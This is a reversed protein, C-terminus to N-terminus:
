DFITECFGTLAEDFAKAKHETSMFNGANLELQIWPIGGPQSRTLYGGPFPHNIVAPGQFAQALKSAFLEAWPRPCTGDAIGLCARPRHEGPDPGLAPGRPAMLHCDIGLSLGKALRALEQQYPAHYRKVVLAITAEDPPKDFVNEGAFTSTKVVGNAGRADPARNPDVLTRSYAFTSVAAVRSEMPLYIRESGQDSERLLGARDLLLGGELEPPVDLGAHPISLVIPWRPM